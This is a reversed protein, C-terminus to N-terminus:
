SVQNRLTGIGEISLELVDGPKALGAGLPTGTAIVDGPYLTMITSVYAIIDAVSFVMDSTNADQTLQGNLRSKLNTNNPDIGTDICPGLPLFTDFAKGKTWPGKGMFDKATIDNAVTYGLVHKLADEQTVNKTTDKIVAALEVEYGLKEVGPPYFINDEPGIVASSPKLFIVPEEPAPKEKAALVQKYNTGVCVIKTPECPALLKVQNVPYRRDTVTWNTYISGELEIVEQDTLLGYQGVKEGISFRIFKPM